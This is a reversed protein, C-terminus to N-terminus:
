CAVDLRYLAYDGERAVLVMDDTDLAHLGAFEQNQETRAEARGSDASTDRYFYDAGTSELAACVRPVEDMQDAYRAVRKRPVDSPPQLYPFVVERDGVAYYLTTGDRPDGLVVADAPLLEASRRIFEEEQESVYIKYATGEPHYTATALTGVRGAPLTGALVLVAVLVILLPAGLLRAITDSSEQERRRRAAALLAQIGVGALAVVGIAMVPGLRERDGYWPWTLFPGLPGPVLATIMVLVVAALGAGLGIVTVSRRRIGAILGCAALLWPLLAWQPAFVLEGFAPRDTLVVGLATLVDGSELRGFFSSMTAYRSSAVLALLGLALASAILLAIGRRREAAVRVARVADALLVPAILLLAFSTSPHTAATGGVTALLVVISRTLHPDARRGHRLHLLAALLAPLLAVGLAYPWLGARLLISPFTALAPLLLLAALSARRDQGPPLVQDMLALMTLPLVMLTAVVLSNAATVVDGPLLAAVSHWGVPYPVVERDYLPGLATFPFADGGRRVQQLASLHFFADFPQPLEDLDGIARVAPVVSALGVGLALLPPAALALLRVGRRHGVSAPDAEPHPDLPQLVPSTSQTWVTRGLLAALVLMLALSVAVVARDYPLGLLKALASTVTLAAVTVPPALGYRRRIPVRALVLIGWGPLVLLALTCGIAVGWPLAADILEGM